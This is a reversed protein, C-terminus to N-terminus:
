DHDIVLKENQQDIDHQYVGYAYGLAIGIVLCTTYYALM